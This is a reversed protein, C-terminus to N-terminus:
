DDANGLFWPPLLVDQWVRAPFICIICWPFFCTSCVGGLGGGRSIWGRDSCTSPAGGGTVWMADIWKMAELECGSSLKFNSLVTLAKDMVVQSKTPDSWVWAGIGHSGMLFCGTKHEQNSSPCYKVNCWLLDAHQVKLLSIPWNVSMSCKPISALKRADCRFSPFVRSIVQIPGGQVKLMVAWLEHIKMMVIMAIMMNMVVLILILIMIAILKDEGDHFLKWAGTRECSAVDGGQQIVGSGGASICSLM